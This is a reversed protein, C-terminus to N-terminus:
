NISYTITSTLQQSAAFGTTIPTANMAPLVKVSYSACDGSNVTSFSAVDQAAVTLNVPNVGNASFSVDVAGVTCVQNGVDVASALVAQSITADAAVDVVSVVVDSNSAVAALPYTNVGDTFDTGTVTITWADTNDTSTVELYDATIDLTNGQADVSAAVTSSDAALVNFYIGTNFAGNATMTTSGTVSITADGPAAFAAPMLATSLTACSLALALLKKKM